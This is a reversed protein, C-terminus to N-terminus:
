PWGPTTSVGPERRWGMQFMPKRISGKAMLSLDGFRLERVVSLQCELKAVSVPLDRSFFDNTDSWKKSPHRLLGWLSELM